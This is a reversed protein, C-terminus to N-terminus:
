FGFTVVLFIAFCGTTLAWKGIEAHRTSKRACAVFAAPVLALMKHAGMVSRTPGRWDLLALKCCPRRGLTTSSVAMKAILAAPPTWGVVWQPCQM